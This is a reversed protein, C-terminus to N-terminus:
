LTSLSLRMALISLFYWDDITGYWRLVKSMGVRKPSFGWNGRSTRSWMVLQTAPKMLSVACLTQVSM